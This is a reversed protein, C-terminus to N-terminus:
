EYKKRRKIKFFVYKDQNKNSEYDNFLKSIEGEVNNYKKGNITCAKTSVKMKEGQFFLLLFIIM